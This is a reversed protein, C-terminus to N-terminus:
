SRGRGGAIECAKDSTVLNAFCDVATAELVAMDIRGGQPWYRAIEPMSPERDGILSDDLVTV